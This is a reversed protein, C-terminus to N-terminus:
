ETIFKNVLRVLDLKYKEIDFREAGKQAKKRLETNLAEDELVRKAALAFNQNDKSFDNYDYEAAMEFPKVLIGYDAFYAGDRTYNIEVENECLLEAPGTLCNSAVVPAGCVMAEALVNPIGESLSPLVFVSARSMVSYPNSLEGAFIIRDSFRSKLAMQKVSELRGTSDAGILILYADKIEDAIKEFSRLLNAHNKPAKFSGVHVITKKTELIEKLSEPPAEKSLERIKDCNFPNGLVELKKLVRIGYRQGMIEKLARTQIIIKNQKSKVTHNVFINSNLDAASRISCIKKAKHPSVTNVLNCENCFSIVVDINKEKVFKRLKFARKLVILVKTLLNRNDSPVDLSCLEGSYSYCVKSEGNFVTMYVKYDDNLLTSWQSIVREAGGSRLDYILLCVNKM